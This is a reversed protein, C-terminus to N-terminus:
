NKEKVSKHQYSPNTKKPNDGLGFRDLVKEIISEERIELLKLKRKLLFNSKKENSVGLHAYFQIPDYYHFSDPFQSVGIKKPIYITYGMEIECIFILRELQYIRKLIYIYIHGKVM